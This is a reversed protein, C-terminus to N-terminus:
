NLHLVREVSPHQSLARRPDYSRASTGSAGIPNLFFSLVLEDLQESNELLLQRMVAAGAAGWGAGM